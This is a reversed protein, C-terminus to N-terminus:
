WRPKPKGLTRKGKGKGVLINYANIFEIMRVKHGAWGV